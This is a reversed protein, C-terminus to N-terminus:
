HRRKKRKGLCGLANVQYGSGDRLRVAPAIIVDGRVQLASLNALGPLAVGDNRLATTTAAFDVDMTADPGFTDSGLGSIRRRDFMWQVAEASFGPTEGLYAPTGFLKDFGTYIVVLSGKKIRKRHQIEYARIDKQNLQFNPGESAIRERVDIVYAPWVFEQPKLQDVTRGGIIFHGPADFHTSTHTGTKVTELLFGDEEVTFDTTIEPAPDGPFISANQDFIHSLHVMGGRCSMGAGSGGSIFVGGGSTAFSVPSIIFLCSAIAACFLQQHSPALSISKM